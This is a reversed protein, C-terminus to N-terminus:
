ERLEELLTEVSRRVEADSTTRLTEDLQLRALHGLEGLAEKAANRRAYEPHGLDRILQAIKGRTAEAVSPTPVRVELVDGAPVDAVLDGSRVPLVLEQLTGVVTGGDWLEAEFRPGKEVTDGSEESVNRLLRIQNPPVPIKHDSTIFHVAPLDIRGVLLNDGTLLVHPAALDVADEGDGTPQHVATLSRIQVPTFEQVGFHLTNLSLASDHLFAFLRTGDWLVLRHGLRDEAAVMQRIEHIAIQREGWPTTAGVRQRDAKRLALRDGETTVLMAVVEDAPEGDNGRARMVLRDLTDAPLELKLGSNMTFRLGDVTLQGGLVQGDVLLVRPKGGTRKAGVVAAVQELPLSLTGYRTEITFAKCTATGHLRTQEGVALVDAAQREVGLSELTVLSKGDGWDDFGLSGLNVISRRVDRPLDATWSRGAFPKLLGAADKANPISALRRQAIGHLISVTKGAAVSLTYNFSIQANSQNQISPKVKSRSGALHFLVSLQGSNPQGFLIVGSDKKGLTAGAPMGSDTILAQGQSRGLSTKLTIRATIPASTPNRFTEVYRVAAAKLDVKIRRTVELGAMGRTLLFESGDATMLSSQPSSFSSNNIMLVAAGGFCTNTGSGIAGQSNVDWRYGQADTRSSFNAPVLRQQAAASPTAILYAAM